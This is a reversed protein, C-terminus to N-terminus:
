KGKIALRSRTFSPHSGEAQQVTSITMVYSCSRVNEYTSCRFPVPDFSPELLIPGTPRRPVNPVSQALADTLEQPRELSACFRGQGRSSLALLLVDSLRSSPACLWSRRCAGSNPWACLLYLLRSSSRSTRKLRRERSRSPSGFLAPIAPHRKGRTGRTVPSSQTTTSATATLIVIAAITTGAIRARVRRM